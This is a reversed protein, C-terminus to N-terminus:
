KLNKLMAHTKQIQEGGILAGPRCNLEIDRNFHARHSNYFQERNINSRSMAFDLSITKKPIGNQFHKHM